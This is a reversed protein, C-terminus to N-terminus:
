AYMPWLGSRGRAKSMPFVKKLKGYLAMMELLAWAAERGKNHKPQGLSRARAQALTDPTLVGFVIPIRSRTTLNMLAQTVAMSIYYHHKTQGRIVCGLTIIGDVADGALVRAVAAPIEFAGPVELTVVKKLSLGAMQLTDTAGQLLGQSIAPHYRSSVIAVRSGKFASKFFPSGPPTKPGRTSSM